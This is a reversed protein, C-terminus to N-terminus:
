EVHKWMKRHEIRLILTKSVGYRRGLEISSVGAARAARIARVDAETLVSRGNDEGYRELRRRTPGGATPWINGRLMDSLTSMSLTSTRALDALSVGAAHQERLYRVEAATVKAAHNREGLMTRGHRRKDAENGEWTDWRLNAVRNNAPDGDHHCVVHRPSPRPGLFAKAVELHVTHQTRVNNASLTVQPYGAPQLTQKLILRRAFTTQGNRFRVSAIQGDSSVEYLGEFGVVSRWEIAPSIISQPHMPALEKWALGRPTRLVAPPVTHLQSWQLLIPTM